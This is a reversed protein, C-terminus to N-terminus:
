LVLIIHIILQTAEADADTVTEAREGRADLLGVLGDLVVVEDTAALLRAIGAVARDAAHAAAISQMLTSLMMVTASAERPLGHGYQKPKSIMAM